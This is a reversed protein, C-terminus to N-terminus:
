NFEEHTELLAQYLLRAHQHIYTPVSAIDGEPQVLESGKAVGAFLHCYM